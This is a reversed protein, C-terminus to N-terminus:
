GRLGDFFELVRFRFATGGGEDAILAIEGEELGMVALDPATGLAVDFCMPPFVVCWWNQGEADGLQIQLATYTGAPLTFHGYARTPFREETLLVQTPLQLGFDAATGAAIQNLTDLHERVLAEASSKDKADSLMVDLYEQVNDRIHLKMEQDIEADSHPVVHMRIVHEALKQQSNDLLFGWLLAIVLATILSLEGIKLKM